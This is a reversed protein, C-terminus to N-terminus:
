LPLHHLENQSVTTKLNCVSYIFICFYKFITKNTMKILLLLNISVLQFPQTVSYVLPSFMTLFLRIKEAMNVQVFLYRLDTLYMYQM